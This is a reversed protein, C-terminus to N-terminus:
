MSLALFFGGCLFPIFSILCVLFFPLLFHASLPSFQYELNVRVRQLIFVSLFVFLSFLSAFGAMQAPAREPPFRKKLVFVFVGSAAMGLLAVSIASVATYYFFLVSFIRTYVVELLLVAASLIFISWLIKRNLSYGVRGEFFIGQNEDM